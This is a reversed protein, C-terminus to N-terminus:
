LSLFPTGDPYIAAAGGEYFWELEKKRLLFIGRLVLGTVKFIIYTFRIIFSILLYMNNHNTFLSCFRRLIFFSESFVKEPHSESYALSLTSGWSGGFVQLHM